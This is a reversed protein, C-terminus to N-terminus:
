NWLLNFDDPHCFPLSFSANILTAAPISIESFPDVLTNLEAAYQDKASILLQDIALREKDIALVSWGNALLALTDTGNGCGLDIALRKRKPLLEKKFQDLAFSLTYAASLKRSDVESYHKDWSYMM